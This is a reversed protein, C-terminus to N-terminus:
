TKTMRLVSIVTRGKDGLLPNGALTEITLGHEPMPPEGKLPIMYKERDWETAKKGTKQEYFAVVKAPADDSYFSWVKQESSSLAGSLEADFRAGPYAPVGLEAESPPALAPKPKRERAKQRPSAFPDQASVEVATFLLLAAALLHRLM